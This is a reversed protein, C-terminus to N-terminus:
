AYRLHEHVGDGLNFLADVISLGPLFASGPQQYPRPRYERVHLAIGARAFKEPDQYNQGGGGSVYGTGGAAKVLEIIRDDRCSDVAYSSSVQLRCSLGLHRALRTVAEINFECLYETELSLIEAALDMAEDFKPARRYTHRLTQLHRRRWNPDAFKVDRILQREGRSVPISLWTGDNPSHIRTRSVYSRGQPFQVDDLFVFIDAQAMKAFYGLWPLYNPQHVAVTVPRDEDPRVDPLPALSTQM